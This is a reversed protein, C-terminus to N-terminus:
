LRSRLELWLRFAMILVLHKVRSLQNRIGRRDYHQATPFIQSNAQSTEGHEGGGVHQKAGALVRDHLSPLCFLLRGVGGPPPLLLAAAASVLSSCLMLSM